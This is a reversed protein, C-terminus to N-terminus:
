YWGVTVTSAAVPITTTLHNSARLSAVLVRTAVYTAVLM